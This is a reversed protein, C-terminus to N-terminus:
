WSAWFVILLNSLKGPVNEWKAACLIWKIFLSKQSFAIGSTEISGPLVTSCISGGPCPPYRDEYYLHIKNTDADIIYHSDILL